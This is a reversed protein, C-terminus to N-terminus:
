SPQQFRFFHYRNRVSGVTIEEKTGDHYHIWALIYSPACQLSADNEVWDKLYSVLDSYGISPMPYGKDKTKLPVWRDECCSCDIGKDIGDFYIGKTLATFNAKIPDHEQVVVMPAVNETIDYHGRNRGQRFLYYLLM